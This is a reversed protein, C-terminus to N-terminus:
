YLKREYLMDSNFFAERLKLPEKITQYKVDLRELSPKLLTHGLRFVAASFENKLTADCQPDYGEYYGSPMLALDFRDVYDKGLLRPLFEGYTIQQVIATVIKRATQYIREDNWHSNIQALKEAIRNHERLFMTHTGANPFGIIIDITKVLISSVLWVLSNM